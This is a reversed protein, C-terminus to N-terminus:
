NLTIDNVYSFEVAQWIEEESAQIFEHSIDQDAQSLYALDNPQLQESNILYDMAEKKSVASILENPNETNSAIGNPKVDSNISFVFFIGIILAMGALAGRLWYTQTLFAWVPNQERSKEQVRSMIVSPLKEFYGAPVEYINKKPLDDLKM